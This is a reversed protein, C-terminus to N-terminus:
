GNSTSTVGYVQYPVRQRINVAGKAVCPHCTGEWCKKLYAYLSGYLSKTLRCPQNVM